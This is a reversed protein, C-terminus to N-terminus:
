KRRNAIARRIERDQDRKKLTDRKDRVNKGKCLGLLIKFRNEKFYGKLPILTKGATAVEQRWKRIEAKHLLLRRVRVPDHNERNGKDYPAIHFQHLWVEGKEIRAFADNLNGQGGRLSKVETGRLEIGAELSELVHYDRGAKRNLTEANKESM